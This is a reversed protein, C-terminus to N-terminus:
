HRDTVSIASGTAVRDVRPSADTLKRPNRNRIGGAAHMETEHFHQTNDPVPSQTPQDCM